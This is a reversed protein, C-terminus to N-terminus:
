FKICRSCGISSEHKAKDNGEYMKDQLSLQTKDEINLTTHITKLLDEVEELSLRYYSSSVAKEEGEKDSGSSGSKEEGESESVVRRAASPNHTSPPSSDASQAVLHKDLYSCFSQFKDEM